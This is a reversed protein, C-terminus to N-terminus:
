IDKLLHRHRYFFEETKLYHGNNTLEHVVTQHNQISFNSFPITVRFFIYLLSYGDLKVMGVGTATLSGLQPAVIVTLM